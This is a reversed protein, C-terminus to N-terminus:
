DFDSPKTPPPRPKGGFRILVFGSAMMLCGFATPVGGILLVIFDPGGHGSGFDPGLFSLTCMGCVVAILAGAGLLLAGLFQAVTL